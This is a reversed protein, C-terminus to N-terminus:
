LRVMAATPMGGVMGVAMHIATLEAALFDAQTDGDAAVSVLLHTTFLRGNKVDDHDALFVDFEFVFMEIGKYSYSQGPHLNIGTYTAGM